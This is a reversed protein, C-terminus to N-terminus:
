AAEGGFAIPVESVTVRFKGGRTVPIEDVVQIQLNARDGLLRRIEREIIQSTEPRYNEGPMIKITLARTKDQHIQYRAVTPHDKFLHPFFEGALVQGDPGVIMDLVRGEVAALLPLGRGCSCPAEAAVAIDENKYRLLPMSRCVLDSVIVEGPEGPRAPRGGADLEVFVNELNLHKGQHRECEAGILMVERCGYRDFVPAEFAREITERQHSFLREATAVIGRPSPLKRGTELAYRATFYLPSTYGIVLNPRYRVIEKVVSALRAEALDWASVMKKRLVAEHLARKAQKWRPEAATPTGWIHLEKEGIRGGAWGDARMAAAFRREYTEHDYYFQVPAGTSGGTGSKYLKGKWGTAIMESGHARIEAKTLVPFRVLDEPAHVDKARVGHEAFRRGYYPVHQEAFQLAELMKRWNLERLEQEPRWQSRELEKLYTLTSRGRLRNEYFPFLVERFLMGYM